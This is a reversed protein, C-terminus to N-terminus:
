VCWIHLQNLLARFKAKNTQFIKGYKDIVDHVSTLFSVLSERSKQAYDDRFIIRLRSTVCVHM